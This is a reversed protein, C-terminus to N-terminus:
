PCPDACAYPIEKLADVTAAVDLVTVAGDPRCPWVDASELSGAATPVEKVWAVVTAVDLVNLEGSEDTEGRPWTTVITEASQVLRQGADTEVRIHYVAGPIIREDRLHLTGWEAPTRYVADDVLMGIGLAALEPDSDFDLYHDLCPADPSTALLAVPADGPIPTVGVYRSGEAVATPPDCEDPVGNENVDPSAEELVDCGDVTGNENCDLNDDFGACRDCGDAVGDDDGDLRDDFGPCRDCGDPVTDDDADLRDDLGRCKDCGDPM